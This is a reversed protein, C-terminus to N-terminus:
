LTDGIADIAAMYLKGTHEDSFEIPLEFEFGQQCAHIFEVVSIDRQNNLYDSVFLQPLKKELAAVASGTPAIALIPRGASLYEFLKAPISAHSSSLLVLGDAERMLKIADERSVPPSTKIEWGVSLFNPYWAHLGDLETKSLDGVFNLFGQATSAQLHILLPEMLHEIRREARSTFIRGAYLLNLRREVPKPANEVFSSREPYANTVTVTKEKAFPLREVLLCRWQESTVTILKAQRLIKKELRGERWSQFNSTALLPKMPEDLWGDRMDVLLPLDFQSALRSAIVHASEPFSSSLIADASSINELVIPHRAARMAWLVGPDPNLLAYALWRLKRRWKLIFITQKPLPIISNPIQSIEREGYIGLPDRVTLLKGWTTQVCTEKSAAAIVIISVGAESLWRIFREVRYHGLHQPDCWYPAVIVVEKLRTM